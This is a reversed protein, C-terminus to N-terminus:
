HNAATRLSQEAAFYFAKAEPSLAGFTPGFGAALDDYDIVHVQVSEPAKAVYAVGGVVTVFVHETVPAKNSPKQSEM